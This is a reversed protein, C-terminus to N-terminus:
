SDKNIYHPYGQYVIDPGCISTEVERLEIADSMKEIGIGGIPSPAERGGIIKPAIVFQIKDILQAELFAAAVEAGGEIFLSDIEAGGLKKVLALPDVRGNVGQPLRWIGIETPTKLRRIEEEKEDSMSCTAIVTPADSELHLIKADLPLSGRSDVLIRIPDRGDVHRVTLQPDDSLATGLGVLVAAYRSRLRHALELSEQASIWYSDGSHTAIRGDATMAMKLLTFPLGTTAYKARIENLKQAEHELVGYEVGLGAKQLQEIGKGAVEPTPDKAAVIVRKIGAAIIHDACPPTHKGRYAVCPEWNVYLEAGRANNGAIDLAQAEAHAAGYREHYAEAVVEGDQVIVAGVLPNPNVYGVGREALELARRM